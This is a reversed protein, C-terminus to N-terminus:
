VSLSQQIIAFVKQRLDNAPWGLAKCVDSSVGVWECLRKFQAQETPLSLITQFDIADFWGAPEHYGELQKKDLRISLHATKCNRIPDYTVIPIRQNRLNVPYSISQSPNLIRKLLYYCLPSGNESVLIKHDEKSYRFSWVTDFTHVPVDIPSGDRPVCIPDTIFYAPELLVLHTDLPVLVSVHAYEPFGTQTLWLPLTAPIQIGQLGQKHLAHIVKNAFFVCNGSKHKNVVYDQTAIKLDPIFFYPILSYSITSVINMLITKGITCIEDVSMRSISTLSVPEVLPAEVEGHNRYQAYLTQFQKQQQQQQQQQPSKKQPVKRKKTKNTRPIAM